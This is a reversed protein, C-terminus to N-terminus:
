KVIGGWVWISIAERCFIMVSSCLPLIRISAWIAVSSFSFILAKNLPYIQGYMWVDFRAKPCPLTQFSSAKPFYWLFSRFLRSNIRFDAPKICCSNDIAESTDLFTDISNFITNINGRWNQRFCQPATHFLLEFQGLIDNTVREWIDYLNVRQFFTRKFFLTLVNVERKYNISIYRIKYIHKPFENYYILFVRGNCPYYM